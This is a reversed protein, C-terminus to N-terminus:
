STWPRFPWPDKNGESPVIIGTIKGAEDAIFSRRCRLADRIAAACWDVWPHVSEPGLDLEAANIFKEVQESTPVPLLRPEM